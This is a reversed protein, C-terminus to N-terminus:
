YSGSGADGVTDTLPTSAVLLNPLLGVTLLWGSGPNWERVLTRVHWRDVVVGYGSGPGANDVNTIFMSKLDDARATPMHSTEAEYYPDGSIQYEITDGLMLTAMYWATAEEDGSWGVLGSSYADVPVTVQYPLLSSPYGTASLVTLAAAKCRTEADWMGTLSLERNGLRNRDAAADLRAWGYYRTGGSGEGNVTYRSAFDQYSYGCDPYGLLWPRGLYFDAMRADNVGPYFYDPRWYLEPSTITGDWESSMNVCTGALATAIFAGNLTDEQAPADLQMTTSGDIFLDTSAPFSSNGTITLSHATEIAALVDQVGTNPAAACRAKRQMLNWMEDLAEFRLYGDLLGGQVSHVPGHFVIRYAKNGTVDVAWDPVAPTWPGQVAVTITRVNPAAAIPVKLDFSCAWQAASRVPSGGGGATRVNGVKTLWSASDNEVDTDTESGNIAVRITFTTM